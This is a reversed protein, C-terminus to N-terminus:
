SYKNKEQEFSQYIWDRFGRAVLSMTEAPATLIGLPWSIEPRFPRITIRDSSSDAVLPDVVSVGAGSAVLDCITQQTDTEVSIKRVIGAKDFLEDITTRYPSKLPLSIFSKGALDKAHIIKHQALDHQPPLICVAQNMVFPKIDHATDHPPLTALGLDFQGSNVLEVLTNRGAAVLEIAVDPYEKLYGAILRPLFSDICVSIAAIRLRGKQKQAIGQASQKIMDLGIFARKVERFLLRAEPTPILRNPKRVFLKFEITSELDASLRSVAPQTICMIDAARTASGTVMITKFAEIQRQNM